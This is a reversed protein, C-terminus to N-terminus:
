KLFELLKEPELILIMNSNFYVGRFYGFMLELTKPLQKIEEESIELEVDIRPLLLTAGSKLLLEHPTSQDKLKLLAPISVIAKGNETEYVAAQVRSTSIIRETQELPIALLCNEPSETGSTEMTCIFYKM